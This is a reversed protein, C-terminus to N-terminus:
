TLRRLPPPLGKKRVEFCSLLEDVSRCHSMRRANARSVSYVNMAWRRRNLGGFFHEGNGLLFPVIALHLEDILAADLYQRITGVGGGM